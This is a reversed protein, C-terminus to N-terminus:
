ASISALKIRILARSQETVRAVESRAYGPIWLVEQDTTLLPLTARISLPVKGDILLDKVKKHGAMGLPMFRDGPRFNRVTLNSPLADRDFVVEMLDAPWRDVPGEIPETCIKMGAERITLIKDLEFPYSYCIRKTGRRSKELRLADYERVLEWGGPIPIRGQPARREILRLMDEVHVFDLGRLHGRKQEVWCRLVRRQLAKPEQLLSNRKLGFAGSAADLKQRALGDLLADEDRILEALRSLRPGVKEGVRQEIMPLMELRLWNRLLTRDTNTRDSRFSIKREKLYALIESKSIDLLPRVVALAERRDTIGVKVTHLPTMGGMGKMGAGRLMWMLVTEAQDDLTHATAVKDLEHERAIDAFFRYRAARALEELNGKGAASKMVPLDIEKLHFRSQLKDAL